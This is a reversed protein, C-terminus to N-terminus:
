AIDFMFLSVQSITGLKLSPQTHFSLTFKFKKKLVLHLTDTLIANLFQMLCGHIQRKRHTM